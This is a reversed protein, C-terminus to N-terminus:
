LSIDKTTKSRQRNFFKVKQVNLYALAKSSGTLDFRMVTFLGDDLALAFALVGSSQMVIKEVDEFPSLVYRHYKTGSIEFTGACYTTFPYAGSSSNVLASVQMGQRCSTKPSLIMWMCGDAEESCIQGFGNDSDNATLASPAVDKADGFVRWKGFTVGEAQACAGILTLVIGFVVKKM